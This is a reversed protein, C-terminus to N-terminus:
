PKVVPPPPGPDPAVASGASKTPKAGSHQSIGGGSGTAGSCGIGSVAILCAGLSFCMLFRM